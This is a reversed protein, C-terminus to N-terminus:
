NYPASKMLATVWNNFTHPTMVINMANIFKDPDTMRSIIVQRSEPVMLCQILANAVVPENMKSIFQLFEQPSTFAHALEEPDHLEKPAHCNSVYDELDDEAYAINLNMLLLFTLGVVLYNYNNKLPKVNM